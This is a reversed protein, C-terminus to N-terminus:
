ANDKEFSFECRQFKTYADIKSRSALEELNLEHPKESSTYKKVVSWMRFAAVEDREAPIKPLRFLYGGVNYVLFPTIM